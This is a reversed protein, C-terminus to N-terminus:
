SKIPIIDGSYEGSIDKDDPATYMYKREMSCGVFSFSVICVLVSIEWTRM